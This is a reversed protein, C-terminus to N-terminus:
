GSPAATHRSSSITSSRSFAFTACKSPRCTTRSAKGTQAATARSAFAAIRAPTSSTANATDPRVARVYEGAPIGNSRRGIAGYDHTVFIYAADDGMAHRDASVYATGDRLDVAGRDRRRQRRSARGADRQALADRRRAHPLRARRGLRDLNRRAPARLNRHRSHHRLERRGIRRSHGLEQLSAAQVQRQAYPRPQDGELAQRRRQDAFLVNAASSPSARITRPLHSRRSGTSVTARSALVFDEQATGRYPRVNTSEHSVRDYVVIEGNQSDAWILRPTRRTPVAWEGDGETVKFWDRNTIGDLNGSFAPGCYANNDQLGGCVLYPTTNSLGVRYVQGIAFNRLEGLDCGGNTSIAIGGDGALAMRNGDSSIWM